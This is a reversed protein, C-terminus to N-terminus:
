LGDDGCLACYCSTTHHATKLKDYMKMADQMVMWRFKKSPETEDTLSEAIAIAYDAAAILELGGRKTLWPWVGQEYVKLFMPSKTYSPPGLIGFTENLTEILQVIKQAKELEWEYAEYGMPTFSKDILNSPVKPFVVPLELGTLKKTPGSPISGEVTQKLPLQEVASSYGWKGDQLPHIKCQYQTPGVDKCTKCQYM